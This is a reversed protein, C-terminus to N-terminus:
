EFCLRAREPSIDPYNTSFWQCADETNQSPSKKMSAPYRTILRGDLRRFHLYVKEEGFPTQQAVAMQERQSIIHVPVGNRLMDMSRNVIANHAANNM